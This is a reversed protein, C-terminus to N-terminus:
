FPLDEHSIDVGDPNLEPPEPFKAPKAPEGEQSEQIIRPEPPWELHLELGCDALKSLLEFVSDGLKIQVPHHLRADLQTLAVRIFKDLETVVSCVTLVIPPTKPTYRVLRVGSPLRYPCGDPPRPGAEPGRIIENEEPFACVFSVSDRKTLKTLEIKPSDLIIERESPTWNLWRSMTSM